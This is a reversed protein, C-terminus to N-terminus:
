REPNRVPHVTSPLRGHSCELEPDAQVPHVGNRVQCPLGLVEAVVIHASALMHGEVHRNGVRQDRKRDGGARGGADLQDVRDGQDREVRGRQQGLHACREIDGGGAPEVEPDANATLERGFEFRAPHRDGLPAGAGVLCQLDDPPEPGLLRTVNEPRNLVRLPM